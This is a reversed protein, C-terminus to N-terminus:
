VLKDLNDQNRYLNIAVANPYPNAENFDNILIRKSNLLNMILKFNKFGINKLMKNTISYYKQPRSTVFIVQSGKSILDNIKKINNILLKPKKNFDSKKQAHIITGDIDCFLVPKQNYDHWEAFTGVDVYNKIKNTTFVKNDNIMQQIVHSVFIEKKIINKIKEYADIFERAKEFKYGGCCFLNSVVKKEIIDIVINNKNVRVFSKGKLNKLSNHEHADVVCISNGKVKKHNFFTDCDKILIERNLPIKAKKIIQYATEAPGSTIKNLVVIKIKNKYKDKLFKIISFKKENQKNLGITINYKSLYPKISNEIMLNNKYDTLSYKPRMNPFRKSLGAAPLIIEM